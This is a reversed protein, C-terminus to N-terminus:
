PITARHVAEDSMGLVDSKTAERWGRAVIYLLYSRVRPGCPLEAGEIGNIVGRATIYFFLVRCKLSATIVTPLCFGAFQGVNM